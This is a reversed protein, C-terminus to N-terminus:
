KMQHSKLRTLSDSFWLQNEYHQNCLPEQLYIGQQVLKSYISRRSSTQKLVHIYVHLLMPYKTNPKGM